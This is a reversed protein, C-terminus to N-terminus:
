AARLVAGIIACCRARGNGYYRRAGTGRSRIFRPPAFIKDVMARTVASEREREGRAGYSSHSALARYSRTHTHTHTHKPCLQLRSCLLTQTINILSFSAKSRGEAARHDHGMTESTCVCALNCALSDSKSPYLNANV